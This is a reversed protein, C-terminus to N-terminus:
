FALHVFNTLTPEVPKVLWGSWMRLTMYTTLLTLLYAALAGNHEGGGELGERKIMLSERGEEVGKRNRFMAGVGGRRACM